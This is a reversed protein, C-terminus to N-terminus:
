VPDEDKVKLTIIVQALGIIFTCILATGILTATLENALHVYRAFEDSVPGGKYFLDFMLDTVWTFQNDDLVLTCRILEGLGSFTLFCSVTMMVIGIMIKIIKRTM